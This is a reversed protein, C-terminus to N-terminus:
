KQDRWRGPSLGYKAGSTSVSVPSMGTASGSPLKQRRTVAHPPTSIGGEGAAPGPPCAQFSKGYHRRFLRSLHGASTFAVERAVTELRLPRHLQFALHASARQLPDPTQAPNEQQEALRFWVAEIHNRAADEAAAPDGLAITEVLYEHEESLFRPEPFYDEFGRQHLGSLRDWVVRWSEPLAPVDALHIITRHLNFDAERFAPYDRKEVSANLQGLHHQLVKFRDLDEGARLAAHRAAFGEIQSRLASLKRLGPETLNEM